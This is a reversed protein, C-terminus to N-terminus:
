QAIPRFVCLIYIAGLVVLMALQVATGIAGGGTVVSIAAISIVVGVIAWWRWPTPLRFAKYALIALATAGGVLHMATWIGGSEGAVLPAVALLPALIAVVTLLSTRPLPM